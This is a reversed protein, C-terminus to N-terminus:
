RPLHRFLRVRGNVFYPEPEFWQRLLADVRPDVGWVLMKGIRGHDTRLCAELKALKAEFPESDDSLDFAHSSALARVFERDADIRAVIPFLYHALEYNDWVVLDRGVGNLTNLHAEPMAFFRTADEIVIISALSDHEDLADRSSLLEQAKVDTLTAYEWLVTTQFVIVFALSLQAVRRLVPAAGLRFLPVVFCLGCLLVRQRLISGNSLGFDDPGVIGLPVLMIVLVIFIPRGNTTVWARHRPHMTAVLLCVLSVGIWVIPAFVAMAASQVTSFPFMKRSIFIFPDAQRWQEFWAVLSSADALARWHPVYPESRYGLSAFLLFLLAAPALALLTWAITRRRNAPSAGVACVVVSTAAIGFSVIHSVYTVLLLLALLLAARVGMTDRRTWAFAAAVIVCVVGINFNHFGLLWMWNLGLAAAFLISTAMGDRGASCWRLWALAAVFLAYTLTSIVKTVVDPSAVQLLVVLLWHGSSNPVALSNLRVHGAVLPDGKLLEGMLYANYLHASGDQTVFHTVSWIPACVFGIVLIYVALARM